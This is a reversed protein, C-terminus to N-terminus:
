DLLVENGEEEPGAVLEFPCVMTVVEPTVNAIGVPIEERTVIVEPLWVNVKVGDDDVPIDVEDVSVEGEVFEFPSVTMLLEPAVNVM